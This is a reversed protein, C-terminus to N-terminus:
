LPHAIAMELNKPTEQKGCGGLFVTISVLLGICWYGWTKKQTKEM